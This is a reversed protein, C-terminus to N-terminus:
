TDCAQLGRGVVYLCGEGMVHMCSVVYWMCLQSGVWAAFWILHSHLQEKSGDQLKCASEACQQYGQCDHEAAKSVLM